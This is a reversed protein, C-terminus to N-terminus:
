GLLSLKSRRRASHYREFGLDGRLILLDLKLLSLKLCSRGGEDVVDEDLLKSSCDGGLIDLDATLLLSDLGDSLSCLTRFSQKRSLLLLHSRSRKRAEEASTSVLRGMRTVERYVERRWRCSASDVAARSCSREDLADM